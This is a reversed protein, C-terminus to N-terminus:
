IRREQNEWYTARIAKKDIKGLATKPFDDVFDVSKPSKVSGLRNKCAAILERPNVEQGPETQIIAKVEEGWKESPVGVVVAVRVGPMQNLAHEVESSYVNFGGSIIMDKKRDVITLYGDEDLFGIDGTLHWGKVRMKATGEPDQYYGLSVAPGKVVIEGVEGTPLLEHDDGMIGLESVITARGVSKLRKDPAIKGGVMHDEQKLASITMPCEAQGFGNVLVPGFIEIAKKIREISAPASGYGLTNLSSTDFDRVNPQDLVAYLATPPLFM